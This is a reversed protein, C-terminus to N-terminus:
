KAPFGDTAKVELMQRVHRETHGAVLMFWQYADLAGFAPHAFVHSRLPEETKEVYRITRDRRQKFEATLEEMSNWRGSPRITEPAQFKRSRDAMRAAIEEDKVRIETRKEPNEKGKVQQQIIRFIEQESVTLHEAVELVSWRDPGPKWKMQAETLGSVTDLFKKRTAHLEPM